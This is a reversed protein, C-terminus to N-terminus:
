PLYNLFLGIFLTLGVWNNHIFAKFCNLRDHDKILKIQYYFLGIVIFISGLFYPILNEIASITVLLLSMVTQLAIIIYYDKKGLWSEFLLASSKINISKDDERDSMAYETDYILTWLINTIFLLYATLPLSGQIEMFAMPIGFAFAVGLHAQPLSHFRKMFPYSLAILLAPIALLITKFSLFLALIAAIVILLLLLSVAEKTTVKGSTLPRDKTREVFKDIDRDAIDNIVCGASRMVFVGLMFIILVKASPLGDSAIWIGWLTPWMLLYSGIPKEVRMLQLYYPINQIKLM